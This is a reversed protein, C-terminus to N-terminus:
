AESTPADQPCRPTERVTERSPFGSATRPCGPAECDQPACLETYVPGRRPDRAREHGNVVVRFHHHWPKRWGVKDLRARLRKADPTDSM